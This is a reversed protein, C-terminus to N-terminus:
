TYRELALDADFALKLNKDLRIFQNINFFLEHISTAATSTLELDYYNGKIEYKVILNAFYASKFFGKRVKNVFIELYIKKNKSIEKWRTKANSISLESLKHKDVEAVIEWM